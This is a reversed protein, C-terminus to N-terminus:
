LFLGHFHKNPIEGFGGSKQVSQGATRTTQPGSSDSRPRIKVSVKVITMIYFSAAMRFCNGM